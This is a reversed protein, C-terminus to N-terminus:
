QSEMQELVNITDQEVKIEVYKWPEVCLATGSLNSDNEEQINYM